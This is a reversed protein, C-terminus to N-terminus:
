VECNDIYDGKTFETSNGSDLANEFCNQFQMVKLAEMMNNKIVDGGNFNTRNQTKSGNQIHM